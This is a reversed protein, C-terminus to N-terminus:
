GGPKWVSIPGLYIENGGVRGGKQRDRPAHFEPQAALLRSKENTAAVLATRDGPHHRFQGPGLDVDGGHVRHGGAGPAEARNEPDLLLIHVAGGASEAGLRGARNEEAADRRLTEDQKKASRRIGRDVTSHGAKMPRGDPVPPTKM